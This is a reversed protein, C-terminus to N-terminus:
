AVTKRNKRMLRLKDALTFLVGVWIFIFAYLRNHDLPERFYFLGMLFQLTPNIYMLIGSMYFPIKKVGLNYCLLPLSTVVGCAPLLLWSWGSLVGVCGEMGSAAAYVTFALALPTMLLTEMFLSAEGGIPINKKVAGYVAFTVGLALAILLVTGSRFVLFLIGAMAFGFTVWELVSPRERFALVGVLAVVVPQIFYGMSADIVHGSNVAWIYLGWNITILIGSILCTILMKKNRFVQRVEGFRRTVLLIVGMFVLSWIIRQSLIFVSNVGALLNWFAPLLGWMIYTALVTLTGSLQEKDRKM